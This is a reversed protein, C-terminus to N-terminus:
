EKSLNIINQVNLYCRHSLNKKQIIFIQLRSSYSFYDCVVLSFLSRDLRASYPFASVICRRVNRKYVEAAKTVKMVRKICGHCNTLEESGEELCSVISRIMFNNDHDGNADVDERKRWLVVTKVNRM